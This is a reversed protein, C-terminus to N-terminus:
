IDTNSINFIDKVIVMLANFVNEIYFSVEVLIYVGNKIPNLQQSWIGRVQWTKVRSKVEFVGQYRRSKEKGKLLMSWIRM